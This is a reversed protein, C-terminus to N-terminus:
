NLLEGNKLKELEAQLTNNESNLDDIQRDCATKSAHLLEIETVKLALVQDSSQSQEM